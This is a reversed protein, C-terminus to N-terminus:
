LHNSNNINQTLKNCLSCLKEQFLKKTGNIFGVIIDLASLGLWLGLASGMDVIVTFVSYYPM